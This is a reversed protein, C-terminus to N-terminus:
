APAGHAAALWTMLRHPLAASWHTRASDVMRPSHAQSAVHEHPQCLRVPPQVLGAMRRSILRWLSSAAQSASCACCWASWSAPWCALAGCGRQTAQMVYVPVACVQGVAAAGQGGPAATTTPPAHLFKPVGRARAEVRAYTPAMSDVVVLSSVVM